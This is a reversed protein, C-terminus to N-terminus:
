LMELDWEDLWEIVIREGDFRILLWAYRSNSLNHKNWIDAM